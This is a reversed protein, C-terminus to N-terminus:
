WEDDRGKTSAVEDEEDEVAADPLSDDAGGAELSGASDRDAWSGFFRAEAPDDLSIWTVFEGGGGGEDM